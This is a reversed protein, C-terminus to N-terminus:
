GNAGDWELVKEVTYDIQEATLEPFMPLSVCSAANTEANELSGAIEFPKGWPFGGQKHIAISYHTKADVGNDNLFKLLDGRKGPDRTEIM